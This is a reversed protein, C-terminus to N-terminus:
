RRGRIGNVIQSVYGSSLGFKKALRTQSGWETSNDRIYQIDSASLRSVQGISMGHKRIDRVNSSRTDWRLNEVRNDSPDGNSHCCEMGDPCPGVFTELVLRHVQRKHTKGNRRLGVYLHGSKHTWPRLLGRGVRGVAGDSSIEYLPFGVIPQINRM